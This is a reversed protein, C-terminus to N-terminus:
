RVQISRITDEVDDCTCEELSNYSRVSIYIGSFTDWNDGFSIYTDVYYDGMDMYSMRVADYGGITLEEKKYNEYVSAASDFKEFQMERQEETSDATFYMVLSSDENELTGWFEDYTLTDMPYTFFIKGHDNYDLIDAPRGQFPEGGETVPAGPETEGFSEPAKTVGSRILPLYWSDYSLPMM